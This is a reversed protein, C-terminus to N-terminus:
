GVLVFSNLSDLVGRGMLYGAGGIFFGGRTIKNGGNLRGLVSPRVRMDHQIVQHM